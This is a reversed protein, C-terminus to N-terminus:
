QMEMEYVAVLSAAHRMTLLHATESWNHLRVIDWLACLDDHSFDEDAMYTATRVISAAEADNCESLAALLPNIDLVGDEEIAAILQKTRPNM